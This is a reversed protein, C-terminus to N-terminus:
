PAPTRFGREGSTPVTRDAAEEALAIRQEVPEGSALLEHARGTPPSERRRLRSATRRVPSHCALEGPPWPVGAALRGRHGVRGDGDPPGLEASGGPRRRASGARPHRQRPWRPDDYRVDWCLRDCGGPFGLRRARHGSGHAHPGRPSRRPSGLTGVAAQTSARERTGRRDGRARRFSSSRRLSADSCESLGHGSMLRGQVEQASGEEQSTTGRAHRLSRHLLLICRHPDFPRRGAGSGLM